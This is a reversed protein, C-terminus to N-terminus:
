GTFPEWRRFQRMLFRVGQVTHLPMEKLLAKLLPSSYTRDRRFM